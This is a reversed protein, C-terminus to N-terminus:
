TNEGSRYLGEAMGSYFSALQPTILKGQHTYYGIHESYRQATDYASLVAKSAGKKKRRLKLGLSRGYEIGNDYFKKYTKNAM